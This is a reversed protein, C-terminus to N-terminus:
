LGSENKVLHAVRQSERMGERIARITATTAPRRALIAILPVDHARHTHELEWTCMPGAPWSQTRRIQILQTPEIGRPDKLCPIGTLGKSINIQDRYVLRLERSKEGCAHVHKARAPRLLRCGEEDFEPGLASPIAAHRIWRHQNMPNFIPTRDDNTGTTRVAGVQIPFNSLCELVNKEFGKGYRDNVNIGSALMRSDPYRLM